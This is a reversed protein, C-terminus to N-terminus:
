LVTVEDSEIDIVEIGHSEADISFEDWIQDSLWQTIREPGSGGVSDGPYIRPDFSIRRNSRVRYRRGVTVWNYVEKEEGDIVVRICDDHYAPHRDYRHTYNNDTM